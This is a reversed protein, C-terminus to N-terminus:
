VPAPDAPATATARLAAIAGVLVAEAFAPTVERREVTKRYTFPGIVMALATDLDLDPGVEGRLQALQLVTRIPRKREQLMSTVLDRMEPDRTGADILLPLLDNIRQEGAGEGFRAFLIRLDEALSGTDPTAHEVVCCRAAQAILGHRSEFHRYLTTKAVGSRAAVEELTVGEAGAELLLEVTADLAARHAQESRPRAM